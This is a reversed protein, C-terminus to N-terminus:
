VIKNMSTPLLCLLAFNSFKECNHFTLHRQQLSFFLQPAIIILASVRLVSGEITRAPAVSRIGITAKYLTRPGSNWYGLKIQINELEQSSFDPCWSPLESELRTDKIRTVLSLVTPLQQTKLLYATVSTYVQVTSLRCDPKIVEPDFEEGMFRDVIGLVGYIKDRSDSASCPQSRYLAELLIGAQTIQGNESYAELRESDINGRGIGYLQSFTQITHISRNLRVWIQNRRNHESLFINWAASTIHSELSAIDSWKLRVLGCYLVLHKAMVAEQLIWTRNFWGRQLFRCYAMWLTAPPMSIGLKGQLYDEPGLSNVDVDGKNRIRLKLPEWFTEHISMYSALDNDEPGLWVVVQEATLYIKSM